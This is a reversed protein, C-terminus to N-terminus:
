DVMFLFEVLEKYEGKDPQNSNILANQSANQQKILEQVSKALMDLQEQM